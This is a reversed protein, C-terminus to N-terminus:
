LLERIVEGSPVLHTPRGSHDIITDDKSLGVADYVTACFDEVSIPRETPFEAKSNTAGVIQGHRYGGGAFLISQAQPWHDRGASSNIRPTRGFEGASIVTVDDLMGRDHLDQILTGVAQDHRPLKNRLNAEIRGHDDWYGTNLSVFRVGAEILRRALLAQEGWGPGYADRLSQPEQSLDFAGRTKGTLLIDLAQGDIEDIGSFVGSHDMQYRLQDLQRQLSVRNMLRNESLSDVLEFSKADGTPLRGAENGYSFEGTRFPNHQVGLWSGGHFGFGGDNINVSSLSGPQTPGLLHSAVAGMSPQRPARDSGNAGLRGTLMWHAAAWHDGNGHSFSRVVTCKDMVKAHCPMLECVPLGPLSSEISRFPGRYEAPAHPKMDFTDLQSPGGHQWILIVAKKSKPHGNAEARLQQSLGWGFPALAGVQLFHRRSQRGCLRGQETGVIKLM